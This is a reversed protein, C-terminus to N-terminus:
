ITEFNVILIGRLLIAAAAKKRGKYEGLLLKLSCNKIVREHIMLGSPGPLAATKARFLVNNQLIRLLM